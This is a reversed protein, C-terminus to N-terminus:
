RGEKVEPFWKKILHRVFSSAVFLTDDHTNQVDKKDMLGVRLEQRFGQIASELYYELIEKIRQKKRIIADKLPPVTTEEYTPYEVRIIKDAIEELNLLKPKM